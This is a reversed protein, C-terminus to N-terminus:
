RDLLACLQQVAKVFVAEDFFEGPKFGEAPYPRDGRIFAGGARTLGCDLMLNDGLGFPEIAAGMSCVMSEPSVRRNYPTGCVSFGVAPKGLAIMYGLEYITGADASPGRFPTLNAILGAAQEMLALNTDYILQAPNDAAELDLSNDFPALGVFGHDALIAKKQWDVDLRISDPFFVEPGALYVTPQERM